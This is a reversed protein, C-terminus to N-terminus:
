HNFLFERSSLVAWFLDEILARREGESNGCTADLLQAVEEDKPYRSLASLYLEEIVRYLPEGSAAAVEVKGDKATLKSRLTDGNSIHLAQVLSPENSRECECTILRQNRGFTRLFRSVVASDYLELARTGKPYFDTKQFDAGPFEIQDFESPVATVQSVADLAV